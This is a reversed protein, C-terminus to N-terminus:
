YILEDWSLLARDPKAGAIRLDAKEQVPDPARM